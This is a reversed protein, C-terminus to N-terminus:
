FRQPALQRRALLEAQRRLRFLGRRKRQQRPLGPVPSRPIHRRSRTRGLRHNQPLHRINLPRGTFHYEVALNRAGAAKFSWDILMAPEGATCVLAIRAEAVGPQIDEITTTLLVARRVKQDTIPDIGESWQWRTALLADFTAATAHGVVYAVISGLGAAVFRLRGM